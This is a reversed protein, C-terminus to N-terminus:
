AAREVEIAMQASFSEGPQLIALGLDAANAGAHVLGVANNVHSVPEIAVTDRTSNTFVVLRTLNSTVRTHLLEDQLHVAGNWGDYCHDVDLLACEIDIGETPSRHTPLKDPAM